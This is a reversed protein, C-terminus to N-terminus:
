SRTRPPPAARPAHGSRGSFAVGLLLSLTFVPAYTTLAESSLQATAGLPGAETAIGWLAWAAPLLCALSFVRTSLSAGEGIGGSLVCLVALALASVGLGVGLHFYRSGVRAVAPGLLQVREPTRLEVQGATGVLGDTNLLGTGQFESSSLHVTGPPESTERLSASRYLTLLSAVSLFGIGLIRTLRRAM